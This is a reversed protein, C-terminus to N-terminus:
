PVVEFGKKKFHKDFAFVRKVGLVEAMVFVTCDVLSLKHSRAEKFKNWAVSSLNDDLKIIKVLSSDRLYEGIKIALNYSLRRRVLAITEYFVATNNGVPM